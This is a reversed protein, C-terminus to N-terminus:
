AWQYPADALRRNRAVQDPVVRSKGSRMADSGSYPKGAVMEPADLSGAPGVEDLRRDPDVRVM